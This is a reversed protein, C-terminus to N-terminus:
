SDKLVHPATSPKCDSVPFSQLCFSFFTASPLITPYCWQNVPYSNSCVKPSLSPCPLRAHQLGHPQLTPCSKTVSCCHFSSCHGSYLTNWTSQEATPFSSSPQSSVLSLLIQLVSNVIKSSVIIMMILYSVNSFPSYPQILIM